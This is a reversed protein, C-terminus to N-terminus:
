KPGELLNRRVEVEKIEKVKEIPKERDLGIESVEFADDIPLLYVRFKRGILRKPLCVAGTHNTIKNVKKEFILGEKLLKDTFRLYENFSNLIRNSLRLRNRETM